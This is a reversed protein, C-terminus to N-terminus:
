QFWNEEVKHLWTKAAERKSSDHGVQIAQTNVIGARTLTGTAESCTPTPCWNRRHSGRALSPSGGGLM